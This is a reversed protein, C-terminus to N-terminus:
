SRCRHFQRIDRFCSIGYANQGFVTVTSNDPKKAAKLDTWFIVCFFPFLAFQERSNKNARAKPRQSRKQPAKM